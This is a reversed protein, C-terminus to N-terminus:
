IGEPSRSYVRKSRSDLLTSSQWSLEWGPSFVKWYLLPEQIQLLTAKRRKQTRNADKELPYGLFRHLRCQLCSLLSVQASFHCLFQACTSVTFSSCLGSFILMQILSRWWETLVSPDLSAATTGSSDPSNPKGLASMQEQNEHKM